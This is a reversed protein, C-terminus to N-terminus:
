QPLPSLNPTDFAFTPEFRPTSTGSTSSAFFPAPPTSTGEEDPSMLHAFRSLQDETTELRTLLEMKEMQENQLQSRLVDNEDELDAIRDASSSSGVSSVVSTERQKRRATSTSSTPGSSGSQPIPIRQGRLQAELEAVRRELYSTHEKKRDRSAQAANRNRIMRAIRRTEKEKESMAKGTNLQKPSTQGRDGPGVQFQNRNGLSARSRKGRGKDEEEEEEHFDMDDEEDISMITANSLRRKPRSSSSSSSQSSLSPASATGNLSTTLPLQPLSATLLSTM